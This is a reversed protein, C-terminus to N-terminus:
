LDEEYYMKALPFPDLARDLIGHVYAILVGYNVIPVGLDEAQNIRYLMAKRNLMCGACHVVLAYDKINEPFTYGSTFEFNLEKGTTQRLWRPIKVSGIDDSQRHHTCAESILIKDGDKLKSIAKAGKVLANLDGKYRAFLISFSTMLIDKPTDASVKLFVQSDTIVIKPKTGLKALTDKLEYEKTVIAMADNELIDRITQQQPLILRGKPAAKDIPTVLIAFDGPKILDGVLKFKDEDSPSEKVLADKINKIGKNNLASVKIFDCSWKKEYNKIIDDSLSNIDSKNLVAIMPIKKNKILNVIEEDFSSIECSSDIVIIAVDTKNLVELSKKKRIEGLESIDDLGATDIIVVPGLPLLEMSKYVPDTTTGKVDSVLAIEQNTLANIISSKGANTRGFLSIHLRNSRPTESLNSM